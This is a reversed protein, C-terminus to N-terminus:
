TNTARIVTYELAFIGADVVGSGSNGQQRTCLAPNLGSFTLIQSWVTEIINLEVVIYILVLVSGGRRLARRTYTGRPRNHGVVALTLRRWVSFIVCSSALLGYAAFCLRGYGGVCLGKERGDKNPYMFSFLVNQLFNNRYEDVGLCPEAKKSGNRREGPLHPRVAVFAHAPAQYKRDGVPPPQVSEGGSQGVGPHGHARQAHLDSGGECDVGSANNEYNKNGRDFIVIWLDILNINGNEPYSCSASM